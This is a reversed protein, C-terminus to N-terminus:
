KKQIQRYEKPTTGYFKKFLTYFYMTNSIGVSSSIEAITLKEKILLDKAAEIRCQNITDQVSTGTQNKFIRGLYATSFRLREAILNTSLNPNSYEKQIIENIDGVQHFTYNDRKLVLEGAVQDILGSVAHNIEDLTEMSHIKYNFANIDINNSLNNFKELTDLASTIVIILRNIGNKLATYNSQTLERFILSYIEKARDIKGQKLSETLQKEQQLPYPGDSLKRSKMEETSIIKDYGFIIRYFSAEYLELYNEQVEEPFQHTLGYTLSFSFDKQVSIFDKIAKLLNETRQTISEALLPGQIMHYIILGEELPIVTSLLNKTFLHKELTSVYVLIKSGVETPGLKEKEATFHNIRMLIPIVQYGSLIPFEKINLRDIINNFSEHGTIFRRLTKLQEGRKFQSVDLGSEHLKQLSFFIIFVSIFLFILMLVTLITLKQIYSENKKQIDSVYGKILRSFEKSSIDLFAFQNILNMLLVTDEFDIKETNRLIYFNHILQPFVLTDLGVRELQELAEQVRSISAHSSNWIILAAQIDVFSGERMPIKGIKELLDQFTVQFNETQKKWSAVNKKYDFEGAVTINSRNILFDNKIREMGNWSDIVALGKISLQHFIIVRKGIVIMSISLALVVIISALLIRNYLENKLM